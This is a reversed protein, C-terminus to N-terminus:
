QYNLECYQILTTQVIRVHNRQRGLGIELARLKGEEVLEHVHRISCGLAKAVEAPKLM